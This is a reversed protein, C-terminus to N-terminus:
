AAHELAAGVDLTTTRRLERRESMDFRRGRHLTCRNDWMVLDGVRWEHRYVFARQTAHELLDALLVRGEPLTWGVIRTAHAGIFLHRRGSGVHTRVLPWEVPPLAKRQEEGYGTNGLLIRSHFADHETRLDEIAAKLREPLADYAARMDAFETEGGWSPLVAAALMSYKAAPQQFSSDSHWLQNAMNSLIKAHDRAAVRGDLAVNSIDIMEDYAYRTPFKGTKRLGLDLPGLAKAFAMQEGPELSQGRFVLVAYRDMAAELARVGAADPPQRLDLGSAEGVFLPHIQHVRLSM